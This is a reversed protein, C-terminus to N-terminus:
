GSSRITSCVHAFKNLPGPRAAAVAVGLELFGGIHWTFLMPAHQKCLSVTARKVRGTPGAGVALASSGARWKLPCTALRGVSSPRRRNSVGVQAQQAAM